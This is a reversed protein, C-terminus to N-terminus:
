GVVFHTCGYNRRIIAHWVAERPGAMRMALPLINLVVKGTPFMAVAERYCALRVDPPVDGPQTTGVIPQLLLVGNPVARLARRMLELHCNHLPNRTQFGVVPTGPPLTSALRERMAAPTARWEAGYFHDFGDPGPVLRGGLYKAGEPFKSRFAAVYPHNGDSRGFVATWEADLDPTWADSVTLTALHQRSPNMIRVVDGPAVSSDPAVPYVIPVPFPSDDRLTMRDLVSAYDDATMFGSLPAFAGNLIMEVDNLLAADSVVHTHTSSTAM